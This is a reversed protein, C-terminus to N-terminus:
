KIKFSIYNPKSILYNNKSITKLITWPSGYMFKLFDGM